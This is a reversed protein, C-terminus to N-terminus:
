SARNRSRSARSEPDRDYARDDDGVDQGTSTAAKKPAALQIVNGLAMIRPKMKAENM